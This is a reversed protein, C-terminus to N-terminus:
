KAAVAILKKFDIQEFEYEGRKGFDSTIRIIPYQRAHEKPIMLQYTSSNGAKYEWVALNNLKDLIYINVEEPLYEDGEMTQILKINFINNKIKAFSQIALPRYGDMDYFMLSWKTLYKMGRNGWDSPHYLYYKSRFLYLPVWQTALGYTKYTKLAVRKEHVGKIYSVINDVDTDDFNFVNYYFNSNQNSDIYVAEAISDNVIQRRIYFTDNVVVNSDTFTQRKEKLASKCGTVVFVVITILFFHREM